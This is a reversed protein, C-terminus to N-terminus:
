RQTNQIFTISDDTSTSLKLEQGDESIKYNTMQLLLEFYVKEQEMVEPECVKQGQNMPFFKVEGEGKIHYEGQYNNCGGNGTYTGSYNGKPTLLLTVPYDPLVKITSQRGKHMTQMSWEINVLGEGPEPQPEPTPTVTPTPTAIDAVTIDVSTQGTQGLDDTVTLTVSYSGPQAYTVEPNVMTSNLGNGFDWEYKQIQHGEAATSRDGKFQAPQGVVIPESPLDIVAVPPATQVPEWSVTIHGIGGSKFYDVRLDHPGGNIIGSKAQLTRNGSGVWDDILLRGDLWLRVGGELAVTFLYDSNEFDAQRSWRVSYNDNPLGPAPPENGWNFNIETDNRVLVPEGKIDANDFYEGKWDTIVVPTATPTPTPLPPAEVVPVNDTNETKVDGNPVWGVGDPGAPFDIAWWSGDANKGVIGASLGSQLVGIQEYETSPGAYIKTDASATLAPKGAEATPPAVTPIPTLDPETSGGKDGGLMAFLGWLLLGILVIVGIVIAAKVGSSASAWFGGAGASGSSTSNREENM